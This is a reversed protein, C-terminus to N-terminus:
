GLETFLNGMLVMGVCQVTLIVPIGVIFKAKKTKHRFVKMGMLAGVSGGIAALTLLTKEPVRWRNRKAKLKDWGFVLFAAANIILLYAFVVSNFEM